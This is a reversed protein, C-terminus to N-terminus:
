DTLAFGLSGTPSKKEPLQSFICMFLLEQKSNEPFGQFTFPGHTPPQTHGSPSKVWMGPYLQAGWAKTMGFCLRTEM